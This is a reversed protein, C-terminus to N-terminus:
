TTIIMLRGKRTTVEMGLGKAAILVSVASFELPIWVDTPQEALWLQVKGGNKRRYYTKNHKIQWVYQRSVDLGTAITSQSLGLALLAKVKDPTVPSLKRKM